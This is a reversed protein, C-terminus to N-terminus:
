QRRNAATTVGMRSNALRQEKELERYETLETVSSKAADEPKGGVWAEGEGDKRPMRRGGGALISSPAQRDDSAGGERGVTTRM